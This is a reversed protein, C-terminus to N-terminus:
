IWNKEIENKLEEFLQLYDSKIHIIAELAAEDSYTHCTYKKHQPTEAM